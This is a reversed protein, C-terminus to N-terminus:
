YIVDHSVRTTNAAGFSLRYHRLISQFFSARQLEVNSYCSLMDSSNFDNLLVDADLLVIICDGIIFLYCNLRWEGTAM